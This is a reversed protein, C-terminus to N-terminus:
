TTSDPQAYIALPRGFQPKVLRTDNDWRDRFMEFWDATKEIDCLVKPLPVIEGFPQTFDDFHMPLVGQAGTQTVMAQWYREAYETGLSTLGYVGLFAFDVNIDLLADEVFGSSAQVLSTGQPHEVVIAYSGGERWASIPQPPVLPEDVTGPFPIAGRWGIPAHRSPLLTVRFAGFEYAEGPEAVLVQDEPVGSGRAINATSESGIVTAKSRKAVAGVDMAHDFHSHVPVIAALRRMGFEHMASNITAADSDVPRRLLGDLLSPRSIFGDILIQTEGDDFLLTTVGLWTATVIAAEETYAPAASWGLNDVSPRDRWLLFAAASVTALLLVISILARKARRAWM